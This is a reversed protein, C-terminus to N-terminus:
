ELFQQMDIHVNTNPKLENSEIKEIITNFTSILIEEDFLSQQLFDLFSSVNMVEFKSTGIVKSIKFSKGKQEVEFGLNRLKKLFHAPNYLTGLYVDGFILKGINETNTGWWFIPTIGASLEKRLQGVFFSNKNGDKGIQSIDVISEMQKEFEKLINKLNGGFENFFKSFLSTKNISFGFLLLGDGAKECAGKNRKINEFLKDLKNIYANSVLKKDERNNPLVFSDTMKKLQKNLKEQLQQPLKYNAGDNAEISIEKKGVEHVAEGVYYFGVLLNSDDIQKTKIEGIAVLKRSKLDILSIDGIRLFSTIGHYLVFKNNIFKAQRIFELEGQGGIGSPIHPTKEHLFHKRLFVREDGYFLWAFSDGLVKGIKKIEELSDQYSSLVKMRRKFWNPSLHQKKTILINKEKAIARYAESLKFVAVALKPQFEFLNDPLLNKRDGTKLKVLFDWCWKYEIEVEDILKKLKIKSTM